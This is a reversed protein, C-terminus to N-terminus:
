PAAVLVLKAVCLGAPWKGLHGTMKANFTGTVVVRSGRSDYFPSMGGLWLGSEPRSTCDPVEYLAKLEFEACYYGDLSVYRGDFASPNALADAIKLPIPKEASTPCAEPNLAEKVGKPEGGCSACGALVVLISGAVRIIGM